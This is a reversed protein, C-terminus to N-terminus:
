KNKVKKIKRAIKRRAQSGELTPYLPYVHHQNEGVELTYDIGSDEFQNALEAVDVYFTEHSGVFLSVTGTLKKPDAFKPSVYYNTLEERTGAWVLATKELADMSYFIEHENAEVIDPHSHTLDVWPSLLILHHPQKIGLDNLYYVFGLALGGGASDGMLHINSQEKNLHLLEKYFNLLKPYVDRYNYEPAKPYIPMIVKVNAQRAIREVALFQHDEAQIIYGGGHFYLLIDQNAEGSDNWVFVQMGNMIYQQHNRFISAFPNSVAKRNEGKLTELLSDFKENVLHDTREKYNQNKLFRNVTASSLSQNLAYRAYLNAAVVAGSVALTGGAMMKKWISKLLLRGKM